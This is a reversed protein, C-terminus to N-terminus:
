YNSSWKYLPVGSSVQQKSGTDTAVDGYVYSQLDAARNSFLAAANRLMNAKWKAARGLGAALMCQTLLDPLRPLPRRPQLGALRRGAHVMMPLILLVNCMKASPPLAKRPRLAAAICRQSCHASGHTHPAYYLRPCYTVNFLAM